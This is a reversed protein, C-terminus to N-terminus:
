IWGDLTFLKNSLPLWFQEGDFPCQTKSYGYDYAVYEISLITNTLISLKLNFMVM